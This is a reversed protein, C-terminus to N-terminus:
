ESWRYVDIKPVAVVKIITPLDPYFGSVVLQNIWKNLLYLIIDLIRKFSSGYYNMSKKNQM